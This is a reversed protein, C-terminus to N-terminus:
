GPPRRAAVLMGYPCWRTPRGDVGVMLERTIDFGAGRLLRRLERATFVHMTWAPSGPRAPMPFDGADARGLARRVLDRAVMRRGASTRLHHGLLHAHVIYTGGPRLIRYAEAVAETRAAAGAVMGLTSFLCLAADFSQDRIMQLDVINGCAWAPKRSKARAADLMPQSLDIAFVQHGLGALEIAVRGTGCGLDAVRGPTALMERVFALDAQLLPTGELERDYGAAVTSDHAYDWM